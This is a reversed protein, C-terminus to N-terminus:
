PTIYGTNAAITITTASGGQSLTISAAGSVPSGWSDFNVTGSTSTVGSPFAHINSDEAPLRISSAANNRYLTYSSGGFNIGWPETDARDDGLAKLQAFRLHTKVIDVQSILDGQISIRSVAVATIIGLVILVAIVEVLTFGRNGPARQHFRSMVEGAGNDDKRTRRIADSKM